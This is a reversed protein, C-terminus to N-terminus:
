IALRIKEVITVVRKMEKVDHVRIIRAGNMIGVSVTAATGEVRDNPPLDLTLGIFSKRSTGIMIPYGHVCLQNLRNLISFNHELNKGFGIGPDLIIKEPNIKAAKAISIQNRFYSNIEEIVDDYEPNNQMTKPNGKIHMLIVPVGYDSVITPMKSDMTFGSIDNVIDAGCEIAQKAVESKYTDISILIENNRKRIEEIVPLVRNLENDITLSEAGPRTSEGGIDIIEAGDEILSLGHKIASQASFFEGGDSFSDPTVNLVGMVLTCRDSNSCWESFNQRSISLNL